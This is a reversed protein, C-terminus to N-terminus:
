MLEELKRNAVKVGEAYKVQIEKCAVMKEFTVLAATKLSAIKTHGETVRTLPKNWRICKGETTAFYTDVRNPM